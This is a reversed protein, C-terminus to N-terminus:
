QKKNAKYRMDPTGDKKLPGKAVDTNTKFRKDPTGDKKLPTTNNTNIVPKVVAVTKVEKKVPTVKTITVTKAEQKVPTTKTVPPIAVPKAAPTTVKNLAVIKEPAKTDTRKKVVAMKSPETKKVTPVSQAFSAVSFGTFALAAIIVKKM